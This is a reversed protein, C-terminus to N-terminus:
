TTQANFVPTNHELNIGYIDTQNFFIIKGKKPLLFSFYTWAMVATSIFISKLRNM